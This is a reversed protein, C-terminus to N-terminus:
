RMGATLTKALAMFSGFGIFGTAVAVSLTNGGIDPPGFGFLHETALWVPCCLAVNVLARVISSSTVDDSDSPDDDLTTWSRVMFDQQEFSRSLLGAITYYVVLVTASSFTGSLWIFDQMNWGPEIKAGSTIDYVLFRCLVYCAVLSADNRMEIKDAREFRRSLLELDFFSNINSNNNNDDDNNSNSLQSTSVSPRRAKNITSLCKPAVALSPAFAHVRLNPFGPWSVALALLIMSLQVIGCCGLSPLFGRKRRSQM